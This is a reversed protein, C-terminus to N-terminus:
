ILSQDNPLSYSIKKVWDAWEIQTKTNDFTNASIPKGIYISFCNGKQKFIEDVLYLLEINIKLHLIRRIKALKYFFDSNKAEFYIPIIDRDYKVAKQIFNKHWSLDYIKSGYLRSTAGAPFTILHRDSRFFNVLKNVNEKSQLRNKSVPLIIEKIPKIFTLFENAYILISDPYFNSLENFLCFGDILGLPHNSAFIFSRGEKPLNEKGKLSCTIEFYNLFDIIFEKNIKGHSDKLFNQMEKEHLIRKLYKRVFLPLKLKPLASKLMKDVDIEIDLDENM